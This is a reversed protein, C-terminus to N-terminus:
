NEHWSESIKENEKRKEKSKRRNHLYNLFLLILTILMVADSVTFNFQLTVLQHWNAKALNEAIESQPAAIVAASAAAAGKIVTPVDVAM